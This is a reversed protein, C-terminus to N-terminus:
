LPEQPAAVAPPAAAPAAAAPAEKVGREKGGGEKLRKKKEAKREETLRKLLMNADHLADTDEAASAHETIAAKLVPVAESLETTALALEMARELAAVADAETPAAANLEALQAEEQQKKKADKAQAVLEKRMTNARWLADTNAANDRHAAIAETIVDVRKSEMAHELAEIAIRKLAAAEAAMAQEVTLPEAKKKKGGQKEIVEAQPGGRGILTGATNGNGARRGAASAWTGQASPPKSALSAYM